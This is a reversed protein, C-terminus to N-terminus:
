HNRFSTETIQPVSISRQAGHPSFKFEAKPQALRSLEFVVSFWDVGPPTLGFGQNECELFRGFGTGLVVDLVM